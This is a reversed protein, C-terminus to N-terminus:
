EQKATAIMQDITNPNDYYTRVVNEALPKMTTTCWRFLEAYEKDPPSSKLVQVVRLMEARALSAAQVLVAQVEDNKLGASVSEKIRDAYNKADIFVDRDKNSLDISPVMCMASGQEALFAPYLIRVLVALDKGYATPERWLFLVTLAGYLITRNTKGM